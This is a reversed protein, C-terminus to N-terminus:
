LNEDLEDDLLKEEMELLYRKFSIRSHRKADVDESYGKRHHKRKDITRPKHHATEVEVEFEPIKSM